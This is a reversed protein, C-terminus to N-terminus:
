LLTNLKLSKDDWIFSKHVINMQNLIQKLSCKMTSAYILKSIALSKFVLIRGALSLGRYEWLNLVEKLCKLNDLFNLKEVLDSDYSNFIGLSCNANCNLDVWKCNISTETSRQKASIWCAESKELNLILSSYLLSFIQMLWTLLYNLKM